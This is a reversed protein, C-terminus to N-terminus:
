EWETTGPPKSTLDYAVRAIGPVTTAIAKVMAQLVLEPLQKGPIAPVGTMFDNTIFTRIGISRKGAEGFGCPFSIVPVQSLTKILDNEYLSTNVIQDAIRLQDIVDPTLHTPTIDTVQQDISEGFVYVVRNVQHIKKPIQKALDFLTEWRAPGSLACLYSFTRGDGQVGVTRVPVLHASIDTNAVLTQLAAEAQDFEATRYPQDACLIRIALGPGPFPQRWVLEDALGLQQGLMRVEDKHYDQLPEIVKGAQRLQRVLGTDNHHTKITHAKSSALSSASEILDPRLTGQALVVNDPNLQWDAIAQEAVKIYTDGIIKRKEEPDTVQNLPGVEQDNIITTAHYFIEAADVVRLNLGLQKLAAAVGTSEDQRMFGSDVHLAFIRDAPLAKVLLAATVTSDVGGSVLVLVQKDGVTEQIYSIATEMRDALTFDGTFGAIEYLFHKFMAQGNTTLDVEPHFQVGYMKKDVNEIAAILGDSSHATILFGPAVQEVTDGHTLLVPQPTALGEFFQSEPQLNISSPGDERISKKEVVGGLAHVMLQMGYCIGLMPIGLTLLQPDYKPANTDYVSEPGGSIIIARYDALQSAPTDMPLIETDVNLERVRRDIVKGYQAGADLIAVKNIM